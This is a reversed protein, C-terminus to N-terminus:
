GGGSIKLCNCDANFRKILAYVKRECVGYRESLVAVIYSVKNGDALMHLYDNYLDIYLVDDSHIGAERCFSLLSRHLNLLEIVKM